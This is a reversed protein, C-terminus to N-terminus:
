NSCHKLEKFSQQVDNVFDIFTCFTEQHVTYHFPTIEQKRWKLTKITSTKLPATKLISAGQPTKPLLYLSIKSVHLQRRTKEQNQMHHNAWICRHPNHIIDSILSQDWTHSILAYFSKLSKVQTLFLGTTTSICVM